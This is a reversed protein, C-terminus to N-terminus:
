QEDLDREFDVSLAPKSLVLFGAARAALPSRRSDIYTAHGRGHAPVVSSSDGSERADSAVNRTGRSGDIQVPANGIEHKHTFVLDVESFPGIGLKSM